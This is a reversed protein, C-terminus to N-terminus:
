FATQPYGSGKILDALAFPAVNFCLGPVPASASPPSRPWQNDIVGTMIEGVCVCVCECVNVEEEKGGRTEMLCTFKESNGYDDKLAASTLRHCGGYRPRIRRREGAPRSTKFHTHTRTHTNNRPRAQRKPKKKGRRVTKRLTGPFLSM